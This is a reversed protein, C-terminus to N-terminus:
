IEYGERECIPRIETLVPELYHLYNKYRGISRDYLPEKIQRHSITRSFRGSEHFAICGEELSLGIIEFAKTLEAHPDDVFSEYRIEHIKSPWLKKYSQLLADVAAYAYAMSELTAGYGYGHLIYHSFNSVFIDLPHRRIYFIPSDPFLRLMIPIHMENLPMKDTFFEKGALADAGIRYRARRMYWDRLISFGSVNEGWRSAVMAFPYAVNTGMVGPMINTVEPLFPLEDGAAIKSHAAIATESMTTGSRPFGTIFIPRAGPEFDRPNLARAVSKQRRTTAMKGLDAIRASFADRQFHLRRRRRLLERGKEWDKWALAPQDIRDQYRGRDLYDMARMVRAGDFLRVAESFRGLSAVISAHVRLLEPEDPFKSRAEAIISEAEAAQGGAEMCSVLSSVAIPNESDGAVAVNYLDIAQPIDSNARAVMATALALRATDGGHERARALHEGAFASRNSRALIEALTINGEVCYPADILATKLQREAESDRGRIGIANVNRIIPCAGKCWCPM